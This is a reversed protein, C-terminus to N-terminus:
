SAMERVPDQIGTTAVVPDDSVILRPGAHRLLSDLSQSKRSRRCCTACCATPLPSIPCRRTTAQNAPQRDPHVAAAGLRWHRHLTSLDIHDPLGLTQGHM